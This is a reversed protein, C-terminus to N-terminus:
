VQLSKSVSIARKIDSRASAHTQEHGTPSRYSGEPSSIFTHFPSCQSKRM